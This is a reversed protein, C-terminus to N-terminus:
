RVLKGAILQGVIRFANWSGQGKELSDATYRVTVPVECYRLKQIRIEDIIESAHAMRNQVIRIRAAADGSMARLGNHTDTLAVRSFIRTFLVGAKLVLKRSAPMDITTGLVRSGLAVDVQGARVPEAIREIDDPAHQGDADFTVIIRAGKKLAFDLGTRLAAGQGCNVPHRLVWASRALGVAATDDRSGDDVVVVNSYRSCVDDLTAGLRKAEQYAPIM